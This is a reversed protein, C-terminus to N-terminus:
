IQWVQPIGLRELVPLGSKLWIAALMISADCAFQWCFFWLATLISSRDREAPESAQFAPV